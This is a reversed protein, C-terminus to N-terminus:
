GNRCDAVFKELDDRCFRVSAGIKVKPIEGSAALQDLKRPSLRLFDAAEKRNLVYPQTLASVSETVAM